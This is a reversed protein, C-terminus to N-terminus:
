SVEKMAEPYFHANLLNCKAMTMYHEQDNRNMQEYKPINDDNNLNVADIIINTVDVMYQSKENITEFLREASKIDEINEFIKM